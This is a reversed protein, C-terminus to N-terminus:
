SQTDPFVGRNKIAYYFFSSSVYIGVGGIAYFTLVLAPPYATHTDTFLLAVVGVLGALVWAVTLYSGPM